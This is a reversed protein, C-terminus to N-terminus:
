TIKWQKAGSLEEPLTADTYFYLYRIGAAVHNNDGPDVM